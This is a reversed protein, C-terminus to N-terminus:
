GTFTHNPLSVVSSMVGNPQTPRLVEVCVFLNLQQILFCIFFVWVLYPTHDRQTKESWKQSLSSKRTAHALNYFKESSSLTDFIRMRVTWYVNFSSICTYIYKSRATQCYSSWIDALQWQLSQLLLLMILVMNGIGLTHVFSTSPSSWLVVWCACLTLIVDYWRRHSTIVDCRHQYSTM